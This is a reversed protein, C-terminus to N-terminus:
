AVIDGPESGPTPITFSSVAGSTTMRGIRDSGTETFWLAGDSGFAIGSPGDGTPGFHTIPIGVTSIRGIQRAGHETFWM